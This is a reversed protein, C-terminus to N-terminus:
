SRKSVLSRRRRASVLGLRCTQSPRSIVLNSQRADCDRHSLRSEPAQSALLRISFIDAHLKRAHRLLALLYTAGMPLGFKADFPPAM